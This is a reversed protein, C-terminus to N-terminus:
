YLPMDIKYEKLPILDAADLINSYQLNAGDSAFCRDILANVLKTYNEAGKTMAKRRSSDVYQFFRFYESDNQESHRFLWLLDPPVREEIPKTAPPPSVPGTQSHFIPPVVSLGYEGMLDALERQTKLLKPIGQPVNKAGALIAQDTLLQRENWRVIARIWPVPKREFAIDIWPSSIRCGSITPRM